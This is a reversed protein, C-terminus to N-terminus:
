LDLVLVESRARSVCLMMSNGRAQEEATLVSDRHDIDGALVATECSGCTGERCSTIIGIGAADLVDVISQNTGIPFTAGSSALRVEFSGRPGSTVPRPVFRELHVDSNRRAGETEVAALLPEPGCCYIASDPHEALIDAIPLLGYDDQPLLRARPYRRAIEDAFAMHGRTRGGYYLDWRAGSAQAAAVMPLIPTIGIGGAVFVYSDCPVLEFNNRPLSIRLETDSFATSHLYESGGRGAPERLVAIRWCRRDAPDGCLSYQRVGAAGVAVDIHAGPTWSPLERGAFACLELSFVGEAEDRRASVQVPFETM